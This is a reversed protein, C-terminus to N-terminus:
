SARHRKGPYGSVLRQAVQGNGLVQQSAVELGPREVLHPGTVDGADGVDGVDGGVLAPQVPCRHDVEEAALYHPALHQPALRPVLCNAPQREVVVPSQVQRQALDSRHPEPLAPDRGLLLAPLGCLPCGESHPFRPALDNRQQVSLVSM